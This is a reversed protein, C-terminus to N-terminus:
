RQELLRVQKALEESDPFMALGDKWAALAKTPDGQQQYMNGLFLYTQAYEERPAGQKQQEVLIEFNQIAEGGKGLFAPWNSLSVAKTFRAEWHQPDIELARDFAKDANGAWIGAAPGPGVGFLKQLYVGGLKTQADPDNPDAAVLAEFAAVVEDIRGADRLKQWLDQSDDDFASDRTLLAVLDEIAMEKLMEVDTAETTPASARPATLAGRSALLREVIAEVDEAPVRSSVPAASVLRLDDIRSALEAQRQELAGITKALSELTTTLEPRADRTEAPAASTPRIAVYGASGVAILSIILPIWSKM